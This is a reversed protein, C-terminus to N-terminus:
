STLSERGAPVLEKKIRALLEDRVERFVGLREEEDSGTARSPDGL